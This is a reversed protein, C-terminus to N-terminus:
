KNNITEPPLRFVNQQSADTLSVKFRFHSGYRIRSKILIFSIRWIYNKTSLRLKYYFKVIKALFLFRKM